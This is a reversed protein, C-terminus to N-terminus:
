LVEGTTKRGKRVIRLVVVLVEAEIVDYFVRWDGVRLEWLPAVDGEVPALRKRNTTEVTPEESLQSEIAAIVRARDFARMARMERKASEAIQIEFAMTLTYVM